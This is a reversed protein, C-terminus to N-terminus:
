LDLPQGTAVNVAVQALRVAVFTEIYQMESELWNRQALSLTELTVVGEKHGETSLDLNLQADT